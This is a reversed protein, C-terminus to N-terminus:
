SCESSDMNWSQMRWRHCNSYLHLQLKINKQKVLLYLIAEQRRKIKSEIIHGKFNNIRYVKLCIVFEFRLTPRVECLQFGEVRLGHQLHDFHQLIHCTVITSSMAAEAKSKMSLLVSAAVEGCVNTVTWVLWCLKYGLDNAINMLLATLGEPKWNWRLQKLSLTLTCSFRGDQWSKKSYPCDCFSKNVLLLNM